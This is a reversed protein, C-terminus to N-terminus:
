RNRSVSDLIDMRTIDTEHMDLNFVLVAAFQLHSLKITVLIRDFYVTLISTSIIM